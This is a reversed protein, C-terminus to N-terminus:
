AGTGSSPRPSARAYIDTPHGQLYAKILDQVVRYHALLDALTRGYAATTEVRMGHHWAEQYAQEFALLRADLRKCHAYIHRLNDRQLHSLAPLLAAFHQDFVTSAFPISTDPLWPEEGLVEHMHHVLAMKQELQFLNTNLEDELVEQLTRVFRRAKLLETLQHLVFGVVVGILGIVWPPM